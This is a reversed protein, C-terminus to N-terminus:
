NASLKDQLLTKIKKQNDYYIDLNMKKYPYEQYHTNMVNELEGGISSFFDQLYSPESIRNLAKYYEIAMASDSFLLEHYNMRVDKSKPNFKYNIALGEILNAGTSEYGVPEILNTQSNYYFKLDSWDMSRQGGVLDLLAHMRAMKPIDFVESARLSDTRFLDLRQKGAEFLNMILTDDALEKGYYLDIPSRYYITISLNAPEGKLEKLREQWYEKSSFRFIPGSPRENRRLLEQGLHEELAYLGLDKNNLSVRVFDYNLAIVGENKLLQHFIWEYVYNRTGPHQLSFKRMGMMEEDAIVRFSWQEGEVHDLMHGKLRMNMSIEQRGMSITGDVFRKGKTMILGRQLANERQKALKKNGADSVTISLEKPPDDPADFYHSATFITADILGSFGKTQFFRDAKIGGVTLITILIIWVVKKKWAGSREAM